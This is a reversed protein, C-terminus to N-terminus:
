KTRTSKLKLPRVIRIVESDRIEIALDEETYEEM